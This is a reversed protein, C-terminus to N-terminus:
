QKGLHVGRLLFIAWLKREVALNIVLYEESRKKTLLYIQLSKLTRYAWILGNLGSVQDSWQGLSRSCVHMLKGCLSNAHVTCSKM